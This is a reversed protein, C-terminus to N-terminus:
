LPDNELEEGKKGESTIAETLMMEVKRALQRRGECWAANAVAINIILDFSDRNDLTAFVKKFYEEFGEILEYDEIIRM